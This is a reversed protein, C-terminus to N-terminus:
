EPRERHEVPLANPDSAVLVLVVVEHARLRPQVLVEGGAPDDDRAPMPEDRRRVLTQSPSCGRAESAREVHGVELDVRHEHPLGQHTLEM